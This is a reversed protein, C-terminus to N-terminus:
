KRVEWGGESELTQVIKTHVKDVERDTLTHDDAQYIIHFALNKKGEPIEEGEYIDFLDVDRVLEGGAANILNLVEVVKTGPEVLLAIDRVVAPYKSPPQYIKEETALQTLKELDLELGAVRYKIELQRLIEPNIEGIMGLLDDGVKIQARRNPHLIQSELKTELIYDDYWIDSLGLKNLLSDSVGKLRYFERADQHKEKLSFILGLRKIETIPQEDSKARQFVKGIEFLRVQNFFRLNDKVNKLLNPLLSPRLYKQRQSIPNELEILSLSSFQFSLASKQSIFSYNYIETFGLGTLIHRIKNEYILNDNREAPILIATPYQLSIKQWGYLRGIEEILDEPLSIDLRWTPITITLVSRSPRDKSFSKHSGKLSRLSIAENVQFGLRELINKIEKISIDIGLLRKIKELELKIKRPRVMKSYIDVRAQAVQGGAVEQLLYAARDVAQGALNPDLGYEFRISSETRCNFRKSAPRIIMPNFNASELIVRNTKHSVETNLGGMIGALAVPKEIDAIVLINEDLERKQGDLTILSEKQKARRIIIDKVEGGKIKDFDFVHLPQGMELMVYNTVDVLNNIARVGAAELREQMWKPSPSVKVDTVLRACYRPCLEKDKVEVKLFDQIKYRTNQIQYKPIQFKSNLLAACERAIGLHSLCDPARNPLVDIDLVWDQGKKELSKVEFSHLTLIEALKAPSPLKKSTPGPKLWSLNFFSQLWNYSIKM